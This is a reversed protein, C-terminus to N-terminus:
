LSGLVFLKGQVCLRKGVMQGDVQPQRSDAILNILTMHHNVQRHPIKV